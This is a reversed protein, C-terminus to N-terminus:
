EIKLLVRVINCGTVQEGANANNNTVRINMIHQLTFDAVICDVM